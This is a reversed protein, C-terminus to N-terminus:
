VTNVPLNSHNISIYHDFLFFVCSVLIYAPEGPM